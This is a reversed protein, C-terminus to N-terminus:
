AEAGMWLAGGISNRKAGTVTALTNSEERLRLVGMLAMIVAEKFAILNEEPVVVEIQMDEVVQQLRSIM